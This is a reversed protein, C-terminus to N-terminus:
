VPGLTGMVGSVMAVSVILCHLLVPYAGVSGQLPRIGLGVASKRHGQRCSGVMMSHSLEQLGMGGARSEGARLTKESTDLHAWNGRPPLATHRSLYGRFLAADKARTM